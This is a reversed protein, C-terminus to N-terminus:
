VYSVIEVLKNHFIRLPALTTSDSPRSFRQASRHVTPEFGVREAVHGANDLGCWAPKQTKFDQHVNIKSGKLCEM